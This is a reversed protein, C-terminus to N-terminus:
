KGASAELKVELERLAKIKEDIEKLANDLTTQQTVTIEKHTKIMTQESERLTKELARMRMDTEKMTTETNRMSREVELM